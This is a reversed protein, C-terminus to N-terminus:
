ATGSRAQALTLGGTHQVHVYERFRRWRGAWELGAREAEEAFVQWEPDTSDYRWLPKGGRLPVADAARAYNHWSSGAPANTVIRGPKTRGQQYLADQEEATRLTCYVLVDVGRGTCAALWAEVRARTEPELDSLARSM